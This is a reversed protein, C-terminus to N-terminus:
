AEKNVAAPYEM